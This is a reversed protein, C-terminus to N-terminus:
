LSCIRYVQETRELSILADAKYKLATANKRDRALLLDCLRLAEEEAGVSLLVFIFEEEMQLRVEERSGGGDEVYTRTGHECHKHTNTNTDTHTSSLPLFSAPEFHVSAMEDAAVAAASTRSPFLLARYGVEATAYDGEELALRAERWRLRDVISTKADARGGGWRGGSTGGGPVARGGATSVACGFAVEVGGAGEWNGSGGRQAGACSLAYQIMRREMKENGIAGYISAINAAMWPHPDEADDLVRVSHEVLRLAEWLCVGAEGGDGGGEVDLGMGGDGGVGLGMGGAGGGRSVVWSLLAKVQAQAHLACRVRYQREECEQFVAMARSLWQRCSEFGEGRGTGGGETGDVGTGGGGTGDGEQAVKQWALLLSVCGDLYLLSGLRSSSGADEEAKSVGVGKGSGRARHLVQAAEHLRGLRYLCTAM